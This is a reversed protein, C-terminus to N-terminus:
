VSSINKLNLAKKREPKRRIEAVSSLDGKIFKDHHFYNDINGKRIKHFDYMNLQILSYIGPSHVLLLQLTQFVQASATQYPNVRKFHHIRSWQPVM